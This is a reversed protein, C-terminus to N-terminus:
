PDTVEIFRYRRLPRRRRLTPSRRIVATPLQANPPRHERQQRAREDQEVAHREDHGDYGGRDKQVTSTVPINATLFDVFAAGNPMQVESSRLWRPSEFCAANQESKKLRAYQRTRGSEHAYSEKCFEHSLLSCYKTFKRQAERTNGSRVYSVYLAAPLNMVLRM